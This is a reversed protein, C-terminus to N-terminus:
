IAKIIWSNGDSLKTIKRPKFYYLDDHLIADWTQSEEVRFGQLHYSDEVNKLLKFFFIVRSTQDIAIHITKGFNLKVNECSDIALSLNVEYHTEHVTVWKTMFCKEIGSVIPIHKFEDYYEAGSLDNSIIPGWFMRSSIHQNSSLQKLLIIQNKYGITKGANRRSKTAGAINKMVKHNAEYRMTSYYKPPGLAKIMDVYYLLIHFKYKITDDCISNYLQLLLKKYKNLQNLKNDDFNSSRVIVM